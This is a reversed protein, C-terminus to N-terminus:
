RATRAVTAVCYPKGAPGRATVKYVAVSRGRHEPVVDYSVSADVEARRLYHVTVSTTRLLGEPDDAAVAAQEMGCFLIGGHVAGSGNGFEPRAPVVIRTGGTTDGSGAVAAVAVASTRAPASSTLSGNWAAPGLVDLASLESVGAVTTAGIRQPQAWGAAVFRLHARGTAVLRGAGDVIECHSLGRAADVDVVTGYARLLPGSWPPPTVIEVSLEFTVLHSGAPRAMFVPRGLVDDVLVGLSGVATTAGVGTLWPGVGMTLEAGDPRQRYGGVRFIAQPGGIEEDATAAMAAVTVTAATPVSPGTALGFGSNVDEGTQRGTIGVRVPLNEQKM